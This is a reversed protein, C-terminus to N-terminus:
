RQFEPRRPKLWLTLAAGGVLMAAHFLMQVICGSPVVAILMIALPVALMYVSVWSLISVVDM